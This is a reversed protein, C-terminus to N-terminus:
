ARLVSLLLARERGADWARRVVSLTPDVSRMCVFYVHCWGLAKM